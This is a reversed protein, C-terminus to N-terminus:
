MTKYRAMDYNNCSLYARFAAVAFDRPLPHPILTCMTDKLSEEDFGGGESLKLYVNLVELPIDM